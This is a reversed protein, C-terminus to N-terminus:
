AFRNENEQWTFGAAALQDKLEQEDLNLDECLATLSPYEDRLKTNIYSFLVFPDKPIM